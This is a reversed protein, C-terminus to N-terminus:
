QFLIVIKPSVITDSSVKDRSIAAFKLVITDNEVDSQHLASYDLHFEFEGKNQDPFSPIPNTITDAQGTGPPLPNQNLRNRIAIFQGGSMNGAKTNFDLKVDLSGGVPILTNISKITIQPKSSSNSKSCSVVILLFAPILIILSKM